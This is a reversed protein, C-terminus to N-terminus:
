PIALTLAFEYIQEADNYSLRLGYEGTPADTPIRIEYQNAGKQGTLVNCPRPQVGTPAPLAVITYDSDMHYLTVQPQYSYPDGVFSFPDGDNILWATLELFDGPIAFGTELEYGFSFPHGEEVPPYDYDRETETEIQETETPETEDLDTETKEAVTIVGPFIVSEGDCSLELGYVGTPASSPVFFGQNIQGRDGTNVTIRQIDRATVYEGQIRYGTEEHVLAAAPVFGTSSGEFTFPEGENIVWTELYIHEGPRVLNSIFPEYGFSFRCDEPLSSTAESTDSPNGGPGVGSGMRGWAVMGVIAAIAVVFCICAVGVGSNLARSLAAFGQKASSKSKAPPILAAENVYRDSIGTMKEFLIEGKM